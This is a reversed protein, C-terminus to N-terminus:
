IDEVISGNVDSVPFVKNPLGKDGQPFLMGDLACIEEYLGLSAM